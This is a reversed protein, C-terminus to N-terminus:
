PSGRYHEFPQSTDPSLKGNITKNKVFSTLQSRFIKIDVNKTEIYSFNDTGIHDM